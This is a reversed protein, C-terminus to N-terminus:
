RDSTAHGVEWSLVNTRILAKTESRLGECVRLLGMLDERTLRGPQGQNAARAIQNLNKGVASLEAVLRKLVRIEDVPLPAVSRLHARLLTAAYTAARLGRAEARADLLAADDIGVRITIRASRLRKKAPRVGAQHSLPNLAREVLRRMLAAVTTQEQEAVVTLADRQDSSVRVAIVVSAKMPVITFM